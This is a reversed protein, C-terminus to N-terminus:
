LEQNIAERYLSQIYKKIESKDVDTEVSDIYHNLVTHTDELSVGETIEGNTFDGIDEIVKVEIAGKNSLKNM